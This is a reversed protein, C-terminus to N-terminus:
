IVGLAATALISFVEFRTLTQAQSAPTPAPEVM